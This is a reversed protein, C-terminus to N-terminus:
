YYYALFYDMELRGKKKKPLPASQETPMPGIWDNKSDGGIADEINEQEGLRKQAIKTEPEKEM